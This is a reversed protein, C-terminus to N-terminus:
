ARALPLITRSSLHFMIGTEDAATLCVTSGRKPAVSKFNTAKVPEILKVREALYGDDLMDEPTIRTMHDLDGVFELTDALALKMAELQLHFGRPNDADLDRINTHDLMGLAMLATIGQSNPLIEHPMLDDFGKSITGRWEARHAALDTVRLPADNAKAFAEMADALGGQYFAKGKTEAILRFTRAM